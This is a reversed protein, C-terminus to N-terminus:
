TQVPRFTPACKCVSACLPLLRRGRRHRGVEPSPDTNLNPQPPLPEAPVSRGVKPSPNANLSPASPLPSGLSHRGVKSSSFQSFPPVVSTISRPLTLTPIALRRVRWIKNKQCFIKQHLNRLNTCSSALQHLYNRNAVTLQVETATASAGGGIRHIRPASLLPQTRMRQIGSIVPVVDCKICTAQGCSSRPIQLRLMLRFTVSRSVDCLVSSARSDCSRVRVAPSASTAPSVLESARLTRCREEFIYPEQGNQEFGINVKIQRYKAKRGGLSHHQQLRSPAEAPAPLEDSANEESGTTMM